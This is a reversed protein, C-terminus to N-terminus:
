HRCLASQLSIRAHAPPAASSIEQALALMLCRLTLTDRSDRPCPVQRDIADCAETGMGLEFFGGAETLIRELVPDM